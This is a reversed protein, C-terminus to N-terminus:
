QTVIQPTFTFKFAIKFTDSTTWPAANGDADVPNAVVQGGLKFAAKTETVSGAQLTVVADKSAKAIDKGKADKAESNPIIVQGASKNYSSAFTATDAAGEVVELYLFASKGTNKTTLAATEIIIGEGVDKTTLEKVNVAVAVDSGNVIEQPASIIQTKGLVADSDDKVEIQFPNVVFNLTTPVTVKLTPISVEGSGEIEQGAGLTAADTLDAASVTLASGVLMASALVFSLIKKKM